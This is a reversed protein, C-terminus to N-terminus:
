STCTSSAVAPVNWLSSSYSPYICRPSPSSLTSDRVLSRVFLESLPDPSMASWQPQPVFGLHRVGFEFRSGTLCFVLLTSGYCRRRVSGHWPLALVRALILHVCLRYFSFRGRTGYIAANCASTLLAPVKPDQSSPSRTMKVCNKSALATSSFFHRYRYCHPADTQTHAFPSSCPARFETARSYVTLTLTRWAVGATTTSHHCHAYSAFCTPARLVLLSSPLFPLLEVRRIQPRDKVPRLRKSSVFKRTQKTQRAPQPRIM